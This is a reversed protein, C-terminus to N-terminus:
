WVLIILGLIATASLVGAVRLNDPLKTRMIDVEESLESIGRDLARVGDAASVRGVESFTSTLVRKEEDTFNHELVLREAAFLLDGTEKVASTFGYKSLLPLEIGDALTAIPSLYDCIKGRAFSLFSILEERLSLNTRERKEYKKFLTIAGLAVM